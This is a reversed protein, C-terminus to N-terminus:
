FKWHHKLLIVEHGGEAAGGGGGAHEGEGPLPLLVGGAGCVTDVLEGPTGQLNITLPHHHTCLPTATVHGGTSILYLRINSLCTCHKLFFTQDNKNENPHKKTNNTIEPSKKMIKTIKLLKKAINTM